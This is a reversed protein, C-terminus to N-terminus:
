TQTVFVPVSERLVSDDGTDTEILLQGDIRRAYAYGIRKDLSIIQQGDISLYAGNIAILEELPGSEEAFRAWTWNFDSTLRDTVVSGGKSRLIVDQFRDARVEYGHGAAAVIPGVETLVAAALGHPIMFTVFEQEGTARSTYVAVPAHTRAGYCPSIWSRDIHWCGNQGFTSLSLGSLGDTLERVRTLGGVTEIVPFSDAAFHFYLDCRHEGQTLLQDYAIWYDGKLFLVQRSHTTASSARNYGDHKGALYDFRKHTFWSPDRANAIRRWRFAMEAPESSSAGDVTLTNHAHSSRFYDRQEKSGTYTYTGPDILLTRGYGALEFSLTDAHAHGYSFEPANHMGCNILLYNANPTWGDRMVYYGSYSFARSTQTPQRATLSDFVQLGPRGLLWLTEEAAEGSVFKYDSRHFLSAGSSLAARFDNAPREDLMVLRGGDDDGIFPTTGDPRTIYMLHDLLLVSTTELKRRVDEPLRPDNNQALILYHMYFDAIYRHYYTSHEFYAGDPLIQRELQALLISEGLERWRTACKLEPLLAGLYYLALAEGTLHTNPSFYTSLYNEVHHGQIYLFKLLRIFLAPTLHESDQFFYLAWMWSIVRFAIELSSAWNIGRKPLNADMWSTVHTVFAQAFAEDGTRWYARGLTQFFQHRNLEWVIKKDGSIRPDLYDIKSWHKLPAHIGAIPELHWDVPYGFSLQHLGLLDFRGNCVRTARTIVADKGSSFRTCLEARTEERDLFGGFFRPSSRQRFHALLTTADCFRSGTLLGFFRTDSPIRTQASCGLREALAQGRQLSRTRLEAVSRGRLKKLLKVM